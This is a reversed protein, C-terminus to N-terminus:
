DRRWPRPGGLVHLHLHSVEQGGDAGSNIMVRFGGQPGPRCGQEAALRPALALMTGLLGAEDPGCDQLSVIHCKPIILFHVPANPQHDHFAVIDDNEYIKRTALEGQAIRCFVCTDSSM